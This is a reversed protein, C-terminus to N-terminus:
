SILTLVYKQKVLVSIIHDEMHESISVCTSHYRPVKSADAQSMTPNSTTITAFVPSSRTNGSVTNVNESQSVSNTSRTVAQASVEAVKDMAPSQVRLIVRLWKRIKMATKFM